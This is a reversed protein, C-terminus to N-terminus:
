TFPGRLVMATIEGHPGLDYRDYQSWGRALERTEEEPLGTYRSDRVKDTVATTTHLAGDKRLWRRADAIFRPM